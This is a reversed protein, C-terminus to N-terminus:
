SQTDRLLRQKSLLPAPSGRYQLSDGPLDVQVLKGKDGQSGLHPQALSCSAM